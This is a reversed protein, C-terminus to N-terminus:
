TTTNKSKTHFEGRLGYVPVCLLSRKPAYGYEQINLILEERISQNQIVESCTRGTNELCFNNLLMESEQYSMRKTSPNILDAEDGYLMDAYGRSVLSVEIKPILIWVLLSLASILVLIVRIFPDKSEVLELSLM